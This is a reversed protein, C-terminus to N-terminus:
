YNITTSADRSAANSEDRSSNIKLEPHNNNRGPRLSLKPYGFWCREVDSWCADIREKWIGREKEGAM